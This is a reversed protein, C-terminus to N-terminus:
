RRGIKKRYIDSFGSMGTTQGPYYKAIWAQPTTAIGTAQDIWMEQFSKLDFYRGQYQVLSTGASDAVIPNGMFDVTNGNVDYYVTGPTAANPSINGYPDTLQGNANFYNYETMWGPNETAMQVQTVANGNNDIVLPNQYSGDSLLYYNGNKKVILTGKADSSIPNRQYDIPNGNLDYYTQGAVPANPSVNGYPDTLKGNADFYNYETMWGPNESNFQAQTVANGNNDIIMENHYNSDTLLYYKSNKQVILVGKADSMIPNRQYDVPNGNLDYYTQGAIPANPSVDGYPNTLKGNADFYHYDAATTPDESSTASSSAGPIVSLLPAAIQKAGVANAVLGTAAAGIVLPTALIPLVPAVLKVIPRIATKEIVKGISQTAKLIPKVVTQTVPKLVQTVVNSIPALPKSGITIKPASIKLGGSLGKQEYM